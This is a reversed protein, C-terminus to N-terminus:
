IPRLRYVFLTEFPHSEEALVTWELGAATARKQVTEPDTLTSILLFATGGPTLVRGVDDLFPDVVARGDEGGSLAREMWDDWEQEPPTPLYPPNCVVVDFVDARFPDVVNARVVSLGTGAADRCAEPSLDSGLVRAGTADRLRNAVYGSGTGVDLALSDDDIDVDGSEAAEIVTEALLRSDEAPQYVTEVDRQQALSPRDDETM